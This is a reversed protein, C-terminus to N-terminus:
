QIYLETIHMTWVIDGTEQTLNKIATKYPLCKDGSECNDMEQNYVEHYCKINRIFDTYVGFAEEAINSVDRSM